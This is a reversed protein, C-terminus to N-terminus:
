SLTTFGAREMVMESVARLLGAFYMLARSACEPSVLALCGPSRDGTRAVGGVFGDYTLNRKINGRVDPRWEPLPVLGPQVLEWDGFWALIEDHDRWRGTGLQENFLKEMEAAKAADEPHDPGPMRFSSIALYSGPPLADRLRRSAPRTRTMPSTTCSRLCCCGSRSAPTPSSGCRPIRWLARRPSTGCDTRM